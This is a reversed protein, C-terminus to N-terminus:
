RRCGDKNIWPNPGDYNHYKVANSSLNNLVINLRSKDILARDVGIETQFQIKDAGELFQLNERVGEVINKVDVDEHVVETRANKSYDIIDKIFLDLREVRDTMMNLYSLTKPEDTENKAINVLGKISLLPSRLDHSTSYFFRDLEANTKILHENKVRVEGALIHLRRETEVNVGLVFRISVILIFTSSLLNIIFNLEVNPAEFEYSGILDFDTLFLSILLGVSLLVFINRLRNEHPDFIAMSIAILPFYFLYIGIGAPIVCAYAAFCVNLFSLGIIRALNHHGKRHLVYCSFLVVTIFLDILPIINVETLFDQTFHFLGMATAFLSIREFLKQRKRVAYDEIREEDVL